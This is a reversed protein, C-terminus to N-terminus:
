NNHQPQNDLAQKCLHSHNTLRFGCREAFCSFGGSRLVFRDLGCASSAAIAIGERASYNPHKRWTHKLRNQKRIYKTTKHVTQFRM